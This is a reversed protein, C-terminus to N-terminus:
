VSMNQIQEELTIIRNRLEALTDLYEDRYVYKRWKWEGNVVDAWATHNELLRYDGNVFLRYTDPNQEIITQRRVRTRHTLETGEGIPITNDGGEISSTDNSLVIDAFDPTVRLLNEEYQNTNSSDIVYWNDLPRKNNETVWMQYQKCVTVERDTTRPTWQSAKYDIYDKLIYEYMKDRIHIVTYIGDELEETILTHLSNVPIYRNTNNTIDVFEHEKWLYLINTDTTLYIKNESRETIDIQRLTSETPVSVIEKFIFESLADQQAIVKSQIKQLENQMQPIFAFKRIFKRFITQPLAQQGNVLSMNTKEFEFVDLATVEDKKANSIISSLKEDIYRKWYLADDTGM